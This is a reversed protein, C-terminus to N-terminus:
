LNSLMPVAKSELLTKDATVFTLKYVQATAILFRDAPDQHPLEIARSSLAVAHILPAEVFPVQELAKNIWQRHPLDLVIRGKENLIAIEWVTIPSLWLENAQNNLAKKVRSNLLEPTAFAWIFIHTDLLLKM